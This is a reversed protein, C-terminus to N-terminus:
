YNKISNDSNVFEILKKFYVYITPVLMVIMSTKTMLGLGICLAIIVANKMSPNKQWRMLYFLELIAFMTVLEDNNISGSM